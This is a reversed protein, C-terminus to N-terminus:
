LSNNKCFRYMVILRLKQTCPCLVCVAQCGTCWKQEYMYKITFSARSEDKHDITIKVYVWILDSVVDMYKISFLTASHHLNYKGCTDFHQGVINNFVKMYWLCSSLLRIHQFHKVVTYRSPGWLLFYASFAQGPFHITALAFLFGGNIPPLELGQAYM